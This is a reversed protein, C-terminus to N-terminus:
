VVHSLYNYFLIWFNVEEDCWDVWTGWRGGLGEHGGSSGDLHNEPGRGQVGDEPVSEDLVQLILLKTEISLFASYYIYSFSSLFQCVDAWTSGFGFGFAM